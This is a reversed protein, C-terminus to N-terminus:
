AAVPLSVKAAGKRRRWGLVVLTATIVAMSIAFVDGHRAYFTIPPHTKLVVEKPLFGKIFVSGTKPDKLKDGRAIRGFEDVYCSVGTNCARAMPRRLEVCRFIANALHVENENSQLFWGDNTMNVILQPGERVFKRALRGVTDEFCILPIIQVGAPRELTLPETEEGRAFDAPLIGGLLANVLPVQRMPLYEGFPVLHIKRYLQHNEFSGLMLAAGNYGPENPMAIDTGTLLAYDHEEFMSNLFDVHNPDHFAYSLSTEPWVVLDPKSAILGFRTLDGMEQYVQEHTGPTWRVVQPVNQQVVLTKVSVTGVEGGSRSLTNVGFFFNAVVLFAAFFFDLHPRAGRQGVEIRFRAVTNYGICGVLVPLFSLGTVGVYEASQIMAIHHRMAVGLGNWGFGTFVVGRLWELAVWAAACVLASRLSALSLSTWKRKGEQEAAKELQPRGLTAAFASWLGWYIALYASLGLV